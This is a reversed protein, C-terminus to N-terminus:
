ASQSRALAVGAKVIPMLEDVNGAWDQVSIAVGGPAIVYSPPELGSGAAKVAADAKQL